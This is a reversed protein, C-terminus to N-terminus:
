DNDARASDSPEDSIQNLGSIVVKETQKEKDLTLTVTYVGPKVFPSEIGPRPFGGPGDARRRMDWRLHHLGPLREGTLTAVSKGASDTVTLSVPKDALSKLWYTIEAGVPPNDAQFNRKGGFWDRDQPLFEAAPPIPFLHVESALAKPTLNELVTINDVVWFSRGHTAAVLAHDRPHIALDDVAVTPLNNNIKRWHAGRDLSAFAGFETGAFLLDPNVPDERITKM